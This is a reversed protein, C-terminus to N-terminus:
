SLTRGNCELDLADEIYQDVGGGSYVLGDRCTTSMLRNGRFFPAGVDRGKCLCVSIQEIVTVALMRSAQRMAIKQLNIGGSQM